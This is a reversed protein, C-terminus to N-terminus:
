LNDIVQEFVSTPQAGPVHVPDVLQGNELKGIVIGPTGRIGFDQALSMNSEVFDQTERGQYCSTVADRDAGVDEALDLLGDENLKKGEENIAKYLLNSYAFYSENGADRGVCQAAIAYNMSVQGKQPLDKWVMIAEGENVYNEKLDKGAENNFKNCYPCQYDSFEIIGISANEKDGLYPDKDLIDITDPLKSETNVSTEGQNQSNPAPLNAQDQTQSYGNIVIATSIMAGSILIAIIIWLTSNKDM